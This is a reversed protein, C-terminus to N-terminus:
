SEALKWAVFVGKKESTERRIKVENQTVSKHATKVKPLLPGFVSPLFQRKHITVKVFHCVQIPATLVLVQDRTGQVL